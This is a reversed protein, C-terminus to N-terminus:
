QFFIKSSQAREISNRLIKIVGAPDKAGFVASGAVIVNAGAAAAQDITSPALGGDVQIDLNPYRRRLEKVKPMMDPMFSQGGFGPEVTMVLVMDVSDEGEVLPFIDEIPTGPKIAVGAQMGSSKISKILEPWSDKTVEAHFTFSSAGAKAFPMVYDAPNTVMLHCDLFAKTHKRLAKIVPEGITLNPVFHGDMIDMHLWDAGCDEMFKAESALNAFDSSLMSPSIKPTPLAVADHGM